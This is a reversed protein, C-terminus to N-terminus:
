SPIPHVSSFHVCIVGSKFCHTTVGISSKHSSLLRQLPCSVHMLSLPQVIDSFKFQLSLLGQVISVQSGISPQEDVSISQLSLLMQVSSKQLMPLQMFWGLIQLSLMGHVISLHASIPHAFMGSSENQLSKSFHV